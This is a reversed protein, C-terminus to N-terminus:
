CIKEASVNNTKIDLYKIASQRIYKMNIYVDPLSNIIDIIRKLMIILNIKYIM